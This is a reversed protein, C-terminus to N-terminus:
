VSQDREQQRNGTRDDKRKMWSRALSQRGGSQQLSDLL